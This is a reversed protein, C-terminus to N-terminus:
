ILEFIDYFETFLKCKEYNLYLNGNIDWDTVIVILKVKNNMGNKIATKYQIDNNSIMFKDIDNRQIVYCMFCDYDNDNNQCIESLEEIHKFARPSVLDTKKKRYGDPFYAIKNEQLPVSKVELIFKKEINDKNLFKGTFDFRSNNFKVQKKYDIINLLNKLLNNEFVLEVIKEAHSPDIGILKNDYFSILSRFNCKVNESLPLGYIINNKECLGCCGLSPTHILLENNEDENIEDKNENFYICDGVYPTKCIKSPRKLIKVKELNNYSLLLIKM